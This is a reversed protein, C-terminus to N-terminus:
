DDAEPDDGPAVDLENVPRRAVYFAVIGAAIMLPINFTYVLAAQKPWDQKAALRYFNDQPWWACLLYVIALHAVKAVLPDRRGRLMRSRGTFLFVLGAAFAWAEFMYLIFFLFAYPNPVGALDTSGPWFIKSLIFALFGVMLLGVCGFFSLGLWGAVTSEGGRGYKSGYKGSSGAQGGLASRAPLPIATRHERGARDRPLRHLRIVASPMRAGPIRGALHARLRGSDPLDAEPPGAGADLPPALYAVLVPRANKGTGRGQVEALLAAGIGAHSRMASEVPHPDLPHGDVTLRDRIRGGFALLGDPRLTGLDGTPIADGDETLALLIERDRLDVRRGPFPLGILSIEEPDDLPGPLQPLEFWTGAGASETPGYVNLLRAGPRLCALLVSQEDLYLRDGTVTVMRLSRLAEDPRHVARAPGPRAAPRDLVLLRAATGPDTHLVTVREAEVTRRLAETTWRPGEPLVLAGGTCLARTWGAAFTTLDPGATILHRDRPTLGAVAVWGAHAALLGDHGVPVARRDPGETFLVAALAGQPVGAPPDTPRGSTGAAEEGLPIVRLDTGDDLRARHAAHTLLAFPRAAALQRRGVAPDEVDIVAYAAGAKLVGLVAVVLEAREATGVAVVAHDPLGAELLRHALQNARADLQGYTLPDPGAILAPAQPADRAWQEFRHLATDTTPRGLHSSESGQTM